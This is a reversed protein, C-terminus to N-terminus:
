LLVNTLVHSHPYLQRPVIVCTIEDSRQQVRQINFPVNKCMVVSACNGLGPGRVCDTALGVASGPTALEGETEEM